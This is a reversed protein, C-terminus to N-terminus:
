ATFEKERISEKGDINIKRIIIGKKEAMERIKVPDSVNKPLIIEKIIFTHSIEAKKFDDVDFLIDKVLGNDTTTLKCFDAKPGIEEKVPPKASKPAKPKIKLQTDDADFSLAMFSSSFKNCLEIIKDGSIEADIVYQRIGMFQKKSQFDLEGELNRTSVIIGRVSTKKSGLKEAVAMVFENAFESTTHIKTKGSSVSAKIVAKNKFEGKSFKQFQLHVSVDAKNDWIKHIFNIDGM